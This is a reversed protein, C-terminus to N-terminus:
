VNQVKGDIIKIKNMKDMPITLVKDIYKILEDESLIRYNNADLGVNINLVSNTLDLCYKWSSHVHGCLLIWGKRIYNKAHESYSPYHGCVVNPYRRGLQIQMSDCTSKVKNSIDHNGRINIFTAPIEKIIDIPKDKGGEIGRDLGFSYLDGIHIIIDDYSTLTKCMDLIAKDHEEISTYPRKEYQLIKQMQLHFDATFFRKAM